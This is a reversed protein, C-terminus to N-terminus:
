MKLNLTYKEKKKEFIGKKVLTTLRKRIPSQPFGLNRAVEYALFYGRNKALQTAENIILSMINQPFDRSRDVMFQLKKKKSPSFFGIEELFKKVDSKRQIELEFLATIKQEYVLLRKLRINSYIEFDGNLLERIDTLIKPAKIKDKIEKPIGKLYIFKKNKILNIFNSNLMSTCDIVQSIGVRMQNPEPWGEDDFFQQIFARKVSKKSNKIVQPIGPDFNTQKGVPIGVFDLIRGTIRPLNIYPIGKSSIRHDIIVNGLWLKINNEVKNLLVRDKNKYMVRSTNSGDGLIAAFITASEETDLRIPNKMRYWSIERVYENVDMFEINNFKLLAKLGGVNMSKGYLHNFLTQKSLGIQKSLNTMSHAKELAVKFIHKVLKHDINISISDPEYFWHYENLDNFNQKKNTM